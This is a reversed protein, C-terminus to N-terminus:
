EDEDGKSGLVVESGDRRKIVTPKPFTHAIEAKEKLAGASILIKESVGKVIKEDPSDLLNIYKDAAKDAAAILRSENRKIILKQEDSSLVRIVQRTSLDHEKAIEAVHKGKAADAMIKQNRVRRSNRVDQSM